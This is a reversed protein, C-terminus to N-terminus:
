MTPTPNASIEGLKDIVAARGMLEYVRIMKKTITDFAELAQKDAIDQAAKADLDLFQQFLRAPLTNQARKTGGEELYVLTATRDAKSLQEWDRAIGTYLEVAIVFLIPLRRGTNGAYQTALFSKAEAFQRADLIVPPSLNGSKSMYLLAVLAELDRKTMLIQEKFDVFAVPDPEALLKLIIGGQNRPNFFANKLYIHRLLLEKPTDPTQALHSRSAIHSQLAKECDANCHDPNGFHGQYDLLAAELERETLPRGLYDKFFGAIETRVNLTQAVVPQVLFGIAFLLILLRTWATLNLFRNRLM